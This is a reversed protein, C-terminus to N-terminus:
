QGDTLLIILSVSESPLLEARNSSDLLHVAMLVANNINTGGRAKINAAYDTAEKVNGASAQELSPKWQTAEGNFVILSFQDKPNLDSLIKILAERTQHIK